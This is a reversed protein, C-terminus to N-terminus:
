SGAHLRPVFVTSTFSMVRENHQNAGSNFLTVIGFDPKSASPRTAVVETEYAITDGVYVPKLWKLERFGPSPGITAAREGRAKRAQADRKRFEVMLRMWVSVTHWGSACLAGFHSNKAAEEDIHFVQPDFKRAFAKIEEAMFTHSGLSYRDGAAIQELFNV